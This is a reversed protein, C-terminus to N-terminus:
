LKWQLRWKRTGKRKRDGGKRIKVRNGNVKVSRSEETGHGQGQSGALPGPPVSYSDLLTQPQAGPALPNESM